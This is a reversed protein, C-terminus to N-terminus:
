QPRADGQGINGKYDLWVATQQGDKQAKGRWIGDSDKTLGSVNSYGEKEIRTQAQGATFSNSGKAPHSANSATTVVAQNNNGSAAQNGQVGQAFCAGSTVLVATAASIVILRM